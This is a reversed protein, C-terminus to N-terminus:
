EFGLRQREKTIFEKIVKKIEKEFFEYRYSNGKAFEINKNELQEVSLIAIEGEHYQKLEADECEFSVALMTEYPNNPITFLVVYFGAGGVGNRHYDIALVKIPGSGYNGM